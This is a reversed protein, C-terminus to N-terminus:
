VCFKLFFDIKLKFINKASKAYKTKLTAVDRVSLKRLEQMVEMFLIGKNSELCLVLISSPEYRDFIEVLDHDWDLAM